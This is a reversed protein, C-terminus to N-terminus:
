IPLNEFSIEKNMGFAPFYLSSFSRIGVKQQVTYFVSLGYELM